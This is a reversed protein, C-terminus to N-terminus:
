SYRLYRRQTRAVVQTSTPPRVGSLSTITIGPGLSRSGTTTTPLAMAYSATGSIAQVFHSDPHVKLFTKYAAATGEASARTWDANEQFAEVTLGENAIPKITAIVPIVQTRVWSGKQFLMVQKDILRETGEM